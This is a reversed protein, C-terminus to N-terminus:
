AASPVRSVHECPVIATVTTGHENSAIELKGGLQLMRETMGRLGVGRSGIWEGTGNEFGETRLGKGTDSIELVAMGDLTGLRVAANASGSHRHVNTLSEQLIRFLALEIDLPLREFESSIDFITSINSRQSFGDLYWSIASKLGMEELMPPYMLYSITRVEKLSEDTLQSCERVKAAARELNSTLSHRIEDLNLKLAVLYQGLSDHLDRGIRRREEDQTRLLHLSLQRLSNESAALKQQALKRETIDRLFGIFIRRGNEIAEGFSVEVPFESGSKHLGMFEVGHWDLRRKGSQKHREFGLTHAQRLREPMLTTLPLGVLEAPEYGFVNATAANAFQIRGTDDVSIIADLATEAVVRSRAESERLSKGAELRETIDRAVMAFGVQKGELDKIPSITVSAWLRTGDKRLRWGEDEARGRTAALRLLRQPKGLQLDEEPHFCCFHRGIIEAAQYGMMRKAGANWLSVHGESDLMFVAYDQIADVLLHFREESQQLALQAQEIEAPSAIEQPRDPKCEIAFPNSSEGSVMFM